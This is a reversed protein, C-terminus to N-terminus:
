VNKEVKDLPTYSWLFAKYINGNKGYCNRCCASVNSQRFGDISCSKTNAWIKVLKKDLTYQYVKKSNSKSIRQKHLGYNNNEKCTILELNELRNDDRIENKHNIEMRYDGKQNSVWQPLPSIFAEYVLRHIRHGRYKNKMWLNVFLYGNRDYTQKMIREYHMRGFNLSKVRGMNSVMYKGEYGVVSKWIEGELNEVM